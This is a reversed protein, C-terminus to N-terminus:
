DEDVLEADIVQFTSAPIGVEIAARQKAAIAQRLREVEGDVVYEPIVTIERRVPADGGRLRSRRESLKVFVELARVDGDMVKAWVAKQAEDLRQEELDRFDEVDERPFEHVLNAVAAQAHGKNAYGLKEAIQDYLWGQRRLKVAEHDRQRRAIAEPSTKSNQPPQPKRKKRIPTVVPPLDTDM